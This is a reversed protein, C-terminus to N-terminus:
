LRYRFIKIRSNRWNEFRLISRITNRFVLYYKKNIKISNKDRRKNFCSTRKKDFLIKKSYNVINSRIYGDIYADQFALYLLSRATSASSKSIKNAKELISNIHSASINKLRHDVDINPIIRTYLTYSALMFTTSVIRKKYVDNLWYKLYDSLQTDGDIKNM